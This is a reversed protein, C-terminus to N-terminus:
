KIYINITSLERRQNGGYDINENDGYRGIMEYVEYERKGKHFKEVIINSKGDKLPCDAFLFDVHGTKINERRIVIRLQNSIKTSPYCYDSYYTTITSKGDESKSLSSETHKNGIQEENKINTSIDNSSVKNYEKDTFFTYSYKKVNVNKLTIIFECSPDQGMAQYSFLLIFISLILRMNVLKYHIKM